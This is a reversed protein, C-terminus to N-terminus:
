AHVTGALLEARREALDVDIEEVLDQFAPEIRSAAYEIGSTAIASVQDVEQAAAEIAEPHVLVFPRDRLNPTQRGGQSGAQWGVVERGSPQLPELM